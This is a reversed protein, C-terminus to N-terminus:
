VEPSAHSEIRVQQSQVWEWLIGRRDFTGQWGARAREVLERLTAETGNRRWWWAWMSGPDEAAMARAAAWGRRLAAERQDATELRKAARKTRVATAQEAKVLRDTM